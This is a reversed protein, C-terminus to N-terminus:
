GAGAIANLGAVTENAGMGTPLELAGCVIVKVLTPLEVSLTEAKVTVLLKECVFLQV